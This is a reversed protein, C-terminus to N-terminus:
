VENQRHHIAFELLTDAGLKARLETFGGSFGIVHKTFSKLFM